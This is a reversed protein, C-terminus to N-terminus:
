GRARVVPLFLPGAREIAAIAEVVDARNVLLNTALTGDIARLVTAGGEFRQRVPNFTVEVPDERHPEQAYLPILTSLAAALVNLSGLYEFSSASAGLTKGANLEFLAFSAALALPVRASQAARWSAMVDLRTADPHIDERANMFLATARPRSLSSIQGPFVTLWTLFLTPAGLFNIGCGFGRSAASASADEATNDHWIISQLCFSLASRTFWIHLAQSVISM